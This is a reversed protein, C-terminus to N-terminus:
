SLEHTQNIFRNTDRIVSVAILQKDPFGSGTPAADRVVFIEGRGRESTASRSM